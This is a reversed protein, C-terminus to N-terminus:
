KIEYTISVTVEIKNEGAQINPVSSADGGGIGLASEKYSSYYPYASGESFSSIRVLRVGLQKALAEAKTKAKSIAEERAQNKIEDQKDVTLQLDSVNNAGADTAGEVIEGIKTLDRIKVELSQNVEYGAFVRKGEPYIASVEYWEYRPYISFSTTKRDKEEVGNSIVSSIVANMKDTNEKMAEAVNKSENTVSFTVIALDPTAYKTGTDSVTITNKADQVKDQIDVIYSVIVVVVFVSLIALLVSLVGKSKCCENTDM